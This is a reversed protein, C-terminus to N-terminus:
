SSSKKLNNKLMRRITKESYGYKLALQKINKGDYEVVVSSKV